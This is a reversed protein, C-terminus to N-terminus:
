AGQPNITVFPAASIQGTQLQTIQVQGGIRRDGLETLFVQASGVEPVLRCAATYIAKVVSPSPRQWLVTTQLPIGVDTDWFCEGQFTRCASAADQALSYPNEAVAINGDAGIVLDWESQDLLLTKM